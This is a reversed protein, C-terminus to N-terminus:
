IKEVWKAGSIRGKVEGHETIIRETCSMLSTRRIPTAGHERKGDCHSSCRHRIPFSQVDEFTVLQRTPPLAPAIWTGKQRRLCCGQAAPQAHSPWAERGQDQADGRHIAARAADLRPCWSSGAGPPGQVQGWVRGAPARREGQSSLPSHEPLFAKSVWRIEGSDQWRQRHGGGASESLARDEQELVSRATEMDGGAAVDESTRGPVVAEAEVPGPGVRVGAARLRPGMVRAQGGEGRRVGSRCRVWGAKRDWLDMLEVSRGWWWSHSRGNGELFDVSELAMNWTHDVVPNYNEQAGFKQQNHRYLISFNKRVIAGIWLMGYKQMALEPHLRSCLLSPNPAEWLKHLNVEWTFMAFTVSM